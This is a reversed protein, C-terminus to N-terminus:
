QTENFNANWSMSIYYNLNNIARRRFVSQFKYLFYIFNDRTNGFAILM